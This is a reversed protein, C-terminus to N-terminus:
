HRLIISPPWQTKRNREASHRLWGKLVGGDRTPWSEETVQAARSSLQGYKETTVLYGLHATHSTEYVLWVGAAAAAVVLLLVVPLLLRLFSKFLRKVKAM